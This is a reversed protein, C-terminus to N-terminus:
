DPFFRKGRDRPTLAPHERRRGRRLREAGAATLPPVTLRLMPTTAVDGILVRLPPRPGLEEDRFPLVLLVARARTRRALFRVLDLTAEDALHADEFILLTCQPHGDLAELLARFAAERPGEALAIMLAGGLEHAVDLLPGLPRPTAYADCVGRLVRRATGSTVRFAEVLATKGAGAEGGILVLRGHGASAAEAAAHLRELLEARELLVHAIRDVLSAGGHCLGSANACYLTFIPISGWPTSARETSVTSWM